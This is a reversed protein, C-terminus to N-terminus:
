VQEYRLDFIMGGRFNLSTGNGQDAGEEQAQGGPAQTRQAPTAPRHHRVDGGSERQRRQRPGPGFLRRGGETRALVLSLRDASHRGGGRRRSGFGVERRGVVTEAGTTLLPPLPPNSPHNRTRFPRTMTSLGTGETEEKRGKRREDM